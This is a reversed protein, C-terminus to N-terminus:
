PTAVVFEADFSSVMMESDRGREVFEGV